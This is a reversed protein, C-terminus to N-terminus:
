KIVASQLIQVVLEEFSVGEHSAEAPLDSQDTMGPITNVETVYPVQDEGVMMDVRSVGHCGLVQHAKLAVKQTKSYVEKPLRAPLVFDTMGPTYKAEYDYFDNKPILELIPLARTKDKCGVIGVTVEMGDIFEEVFVERYQRVTERICSGLAKEDKIISIGLSSGEANPKIVLPLSFIKKIKDISGNVDKQDVVLFKPTPIGSAEFVKKSAVKDMALASAEVGSGTYPIKLIELLGQIAGDEGGKGHLVLYAIEINNKKLQETPDGNVDIAIVNFGQSKLAEFVNAGSRLSVDREGSMGGMLVAIKKSKLEKILDSM